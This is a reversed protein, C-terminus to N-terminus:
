LSGLGRLYRLLLASHNFEKKNASYNIKKFKLLRHPLYYANADVHQKDQSNKCRVTLKETVWGFVVLFTGHVSSGATPAAPDKM